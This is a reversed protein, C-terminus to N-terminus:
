MMLVFLSGFTSLLCFGRRGPKTAVLWAQPPHNIPTIHSALLFLLNNQQTSNQTHPVRNLIHRSHPSPPQFLLAHCNSRRLLVFFTTHNKHEHQTFKGTHQLLVSAMSQEASSQLTYTESSPLLAHRMAQDRPRLFLRTAHAITTFLGPGLSSRDAYKSM